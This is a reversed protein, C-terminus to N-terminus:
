LEVELYAALHLEFDFAGEAYTVTAATAVLDRETQRGRDGIQRESDRERVTEIVSAGYTKWM